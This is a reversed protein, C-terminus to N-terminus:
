QKAAWHYVAGLYITRAAGPAFEAGTARYSAAEAYRKDTLNMVRGYVEWQKSAFYSARLNFLNHGDYRQGATNAQDIRYSGVRVWELSVVGGKLFSSKYDLSVDGLFRPASEMENGSFDVNSGGVVALWSDYRHRIYSFAGNFTVDDSLATSLGLEVGKHSTVGNNTSTSTSLVPDLYSLVDNTKKLDFISFTYNVGVEHGRLGLEINRAQIPKLDVTNASNGQRFLQGESPARFGEAYSVFASHRDNFQWTAGLKPSWHSFDVETSDPRRKSGTQLTSLRNAYDYNIHDYRLGATVRLPEIPSFESHVYPAIGTYTVDYDYSVNGLSYSTYRKAGSALTQAGTFTIDREWYSGPSHDVDVGVILRSRMPAFDQRYKAQLGLSYNSSTNINTTSTSTGVYNPLQSMENYRFYPTLSLLSNGMVTEFASSLRFAKVTRYSIPIYNLSPNNKYDAENLRTSGASQQDIDSSSLLTKVTSEDGLSQDWRLSFSRRTYGTNDRWGDTHTVNVSPRIGWSDGGTGGTLLLRRWGSEGFELNADLEAADPTARSLVNVVGGIADSGYLASAPGKIVEIGASQPLNIEYLANHNFFGTSRTPIGDELYLYVPATTLPQRISTQHGEGSTVNVFVGPIKQLLESPHAPRLTDIVEQKIVNVTSPTESIKQAERTGTVTVPELALTSEEQSLHVAQAQTSIASLVAILMVKNLM